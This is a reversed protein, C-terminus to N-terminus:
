GEAEPTKPMEVVAYEVRPEPGRRYCGPIVIPSDYRVPNVNIDFPIRGERVAQRLFLSIAVSFTMGMDEFMAEAEKKLDEDVRITANINAM